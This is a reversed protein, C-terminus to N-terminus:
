GSSSRRRCSIAKPRRLSPETAGLSNTKSWCQRMVRLPLTIRRRNFARSSPNGCPSRDVTSRGAHGASRRAPPCRRGGVSRDRDLRFPDREQPLHQADPTELLGADLQVTRGPDTAEQMEADALFRDRDSHHRGKSGIIRHYRGITFVPM